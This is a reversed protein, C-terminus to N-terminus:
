PKIVVVADDQWVSFLSGERRIGERRIYRKVITDIRTGIDSIKHLDYVDDPGLEMLPAQYPDAHDEDRHGLKEILYEGAVCGCSLVGNQFYTGLPFLLMREAIALLEERQKANVVDTPLGELAEDVAEVFKERSMIYRAELDGEEVKQDAAALADPYTVPISM